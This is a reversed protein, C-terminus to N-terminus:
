DHSYGAFWFFQELDKTNWLLYPHLSWSNICDLVVGSGLYWHSLSLSVTLCWLRSGLPWGKGLQHGCLVYLCVCVFVYCVCSLVFVYFIWLPNPSRVGIGRYLHINTAAYRRIKARFTTQRGRKSGRFSRPEWDDQASWRILVTTAATTQIRWYSSRQRHMRPFCSELEPISAQWWLICPDACTEITAM